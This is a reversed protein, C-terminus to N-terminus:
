RQMDAALGGLGEFNDSKVIKIRKKGKIRNESQTQMKTQPNPRFHRM